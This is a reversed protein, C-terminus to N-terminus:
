PIHHSDLVAAFRPALPAVFEVYVATVAVAAVVFTPAGAGAGAFAVLTIQVPGVGAGLIASSRRWGTALAAGDRSVRWGMWAGLARGDAALIVASALAIWFAKVRALEVLDVPAIALSAVSACCACTLAGRFRPKIAITMPVAYAMAIWSFFLFVAFSTPALAISVLMALGFALAAAASAGRTAAAADVCQTVIVRRPSAAGLAVSAAISGALPVRLGVHLIATFLAAPFALLGAGALAAPVSAFPTRLQRPTRIMSIALLFVLALTMGALRSTARSQIQDRQARLIALRRAADRHDLENIAAASVGARSLAKREEAHNRALATLSARQTVGGVFIRDFTAPAIRGM